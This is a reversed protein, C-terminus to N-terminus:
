SEIEAAASDLEERFQPLINKFHTVANEIKGAMEGGAANRHGGGNFCKRSLINANFNGKSRLSMKVFGSREIFLVSLVIGRITLLMNAFGETDGKQHNYKELDERTLWIYATHYEPMVVMRKNLAYGKLQMRDASFNSFIRNVIKEKDVGQDLLHGVTRMTDGNYLGHEFNGTDTIIGVYVAEIFAHDNFDGGELGTVLFYVIESTSSRGTDSLIVDAFNDPEPHHDIVIRKAGSAMVLAEAKGMRSPSNFDVMIILDARNIIETGKEPNHHFDVIKDADTMWMLFKELANPSIMDAEKGMSLIWRRMALMAGVADGDPNIHCILLIHGSSNILRKIEKNYKGPDTM